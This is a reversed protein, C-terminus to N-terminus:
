GAERLVADLAALAGEAEARLAHHRADLAQLAGSSASGSLSRPKSEAAEIRGVAAAIRAMLASTTSEGM